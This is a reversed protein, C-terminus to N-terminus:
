TPRPPPSEEDSKAEGKGFEAMIHDLLQSQAYYGRLSVTWAETVAAILRSDNGAL